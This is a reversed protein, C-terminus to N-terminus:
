SRAAMERLIATCARTESIKYIIIKLPSKEPRVRPRPRVWAMVWAM